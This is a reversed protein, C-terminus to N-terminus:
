VSVDSVRLPNVRLGAAITNKRNPNVGNSPNFYGSWVGLELRVRFVLDVEESPQRIGHWFFYVVIEGRVVPVEGGVILERKERLWARIWRM